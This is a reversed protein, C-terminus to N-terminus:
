TRRSRTSTKGQKSGSRAASGRATSRSRAGSAPRSGTPRKFVQGILLQFPEFLDTVDLKDEVDALRHMLLAQGRLKGTAEDPKEKEIYAIIGSILQMLGMGLQEVTRTDEGEAFQLMTLAIAMKPKRLTYLDGDFRFRVSEVPKDDHSPTTFEQIEEVARLQAATRRPPAPELEEAPETM